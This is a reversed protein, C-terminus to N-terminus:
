LIEQLQKFTELQIFDKGALDKEEVLEHAWTTHFPIHVAKGGLELVPLIDSKLSNGIMLLESPEINLKKVLASYDGTKKDSMVEVHEFYDMLGSRKLKRQQDLLDGKTALVIKYSKSIEPIMEKVDNLLIVPKSLIDNGIEIVKEIKDSTVTGGTVDIATQIGSLIFNKVGFGYLPINKVEYDLLKDDVIEKEAYGSLLEALRAEAERFFIENEWLTDDADFAIVKINQMEKM